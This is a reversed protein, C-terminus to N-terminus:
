KKRILRVFNQISGILLLLTFGYEWWSGTFLARSGMFYTAVLELGGFVALGPKTKHWAEFQKVTSKTM